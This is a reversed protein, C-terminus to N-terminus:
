TQNLSLCIAGGLTSGADQRREAGLPQFGTMNFDPTFGRTATALLSWASYARFLQLIKWM